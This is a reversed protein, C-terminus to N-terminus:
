RSGQGELASRVAAEVAGEFDRDGEEIPGIRRWLLTGDSGVLYTAPLGVAAFVNMSRGEPDHVVQYTMGFEEMFREVDSRATRADVSVGVVRLGDPAFREHIEQLYPTEKRCPLCWTAWLNVLVPAGRLDSLFLTDGELSLAHFDPAPAGTAPAASGQVVGECAALTCAALLLLLRHRVIHPRV